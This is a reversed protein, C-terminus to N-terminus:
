RGDSVELVEVTDLETARGVAARTTVPVRAGRWIVHSGFAGALWQLMLLADRLPVLPLDRWFTRLNRTAHTHMLLRALCGALTVATMATGAAPQVGEAHFAEALRAGLLLWPSTFTIFLFAFGAPNV